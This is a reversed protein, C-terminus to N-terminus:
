EGILGLALLCVVCCQGTTFKFAFWYWEINTGYVSQYHVLRLVHMLSSYLKTEDDPRKQEVAVMREKLREAVVEPPDPIPPPVPCPEDKAQMWHQYSIWRKGCFACEIPGNQAIRYHKWPGKNGLGKHIEARATKELEPWDLKLLDKASLMGSM